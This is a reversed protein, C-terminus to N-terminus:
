MKLSANNVAREVLAPIADKNAATLAATLMSGCEDRLSASGKFAKSVLYGGESNM